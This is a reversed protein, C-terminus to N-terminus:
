VDLLSAINPQTKVWHVFLPFDVEANLTFDAKNYDSLRESHLEDFASPGSKVLPRNSDDKVRNWLTTPCAKLWLSYSDATSQILDYNERHFAGGGLSLLLHEPESLLTRLTETELVRFKKFGEKEIWAGLEPPSLDLFKAIVHDLDFCKGPFEDKWLNLLTTKGSGMFGTILLKM